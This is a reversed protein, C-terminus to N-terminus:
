RTDIAVIIIAGHSLRELPGMLALRLGSLSCSINRRQTSTHQFRGEQQGLISM